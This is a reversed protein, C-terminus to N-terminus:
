KDTAQFIKVSFNCMNQLTRNFYAIKKLRKTNQDTQKSTKIEWFTLISSAACICQLLRLFTLTSSAETCTCHPLKQYQGSCGNNLTVTAKTIFPTPEPMCPLINFQQLLGSFRRWLISRWAAGTSLVFTRNPRHNWFSNSILFPSLKWILWSYKNTRPLCLFNSNFDCNKCLLQQVYSAHVNKCSIPTTGQKAKCAAVHLHLFFDSLYNVAM